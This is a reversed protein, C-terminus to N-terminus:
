VQCQANGLAAHSCDRDVLAGMDFSNSSSQQTAEKQLPPLVRTSATHKGPHHAQLVTARMIKSNRSSIILVVLIAQTMSSISEFIAVCFQFHWSM